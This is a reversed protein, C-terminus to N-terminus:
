DFKIAIKELSNKARLLSRKCLFVIGLPPLLLIIFFIVDFMHISTDKSLVFFVSIPILSLVCVLSVRGLFIVIKFFLIELEFYHKRVSVVGNKKM